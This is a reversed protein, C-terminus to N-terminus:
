IFQISTFEQQKVFIKFTLPILNQESPCNLSKVMKEEYSQNLVVSNSDLNLIFDKTVTELSIEYLLNMPNKVEPLVMIWGQDAETCTLPKVVFDAFDFVPLETEFKM